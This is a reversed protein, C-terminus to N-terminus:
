VHPLLHSTAYKLSVYSVDIGFCLITCRARTAVVLALAIRISRTSSFFLVHSKPGLELWDVPLLPSISDPIEPNLFPPPRSAESVPVPPVYGLRPIEAPVNLSGIADIDSGYSRFILNQLHATEFYGSAFAELLGRLGCGREHLTCFFDWSLIDVAISQKGQSTGEIAQSTHNPLLLLLPSFRRELEPLVKTRAYSQAWSAEILGITGESQPPPKAYVRMHLSYHLKFAELTIRPMTLLATVPYKAMMKFLNYDTLPFYPAEGILYTAMIKTTEDKLQNINVQIRKSLDSVKFEYLGSVDNFPSVHFVKSTMFRACYVASSAPELKLQSSSPLVYIHREGFTNNVEAVFVELTSTASYCFYFSVPNFSKGFYRAGTILEVRSINQTGVGQETM